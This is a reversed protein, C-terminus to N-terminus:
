GKSSSALEVRDRGMKKAQYMAEDASQILDEVKTGDDPFSSVGFSLTLPQHSFAPLKSIRNIDKKIRLAVDKARDKTTEPLIMAFEDGGYRSVSDTTRTVANLLQSVEQLVRDGAQHGFKDNYVKFNDVDIMVLSFIRNHRVGREVEEKLRERFFRVNTLGTVSDTIALKQLKVIEDLDHHHLLAEQMQIRLVYNDWPKLIFRHVEAKNIAALMQDVSIEGSLIVRIVKPFVFKIESLFQTGTKDPMKQDSICVAIDENDRLLQMAEDASHAELIKFDTQLTRKLAERADKEDDVILLKPQSM